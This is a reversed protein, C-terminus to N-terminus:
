ISGAISYIPLMVSALVVGVGAGLLVIMTPEILSIVTEVARDVEKKYFTAIKKLISGLEGTEEGVRMMQVMINPIEKKNSLSSSIPDGAKIATVAELLIKKYSDNGVVTSTIEVARVMPIGSSLMTSMNDAIRALYLKKFLGGLVPISLTLKSFLSTKDSKYKWVLFGILIVVVLSFLGYRVLFDSIGLVIRTYIPLDQGSATLIEAIKPVIFTFLGIMVLIFISIVFVPYTLAGKLKSTLEYSRELYDALYSFTNSLKGSEEGARVMNVYFDSFVSPHKNIADSITMGDQIDDAIEGLKKRLLLNESESALLKFSKLAPVQADFLTAVQRSLIVVEKTKVGAFFAVDMKFFHTKDASSISVVILGRRQLVGIAMDENTAEVAGTREEGTKTVSKYNFLM